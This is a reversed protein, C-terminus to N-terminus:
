RAAATAEPKTIVLMDIERQESLVELGLQERVAELLTATREERPLQYFGSDFKLRYDFRGELGTENLVPRDLISEVMPVIASFPIGIGEFGDMSWSTSRVDGEAPTLRHSGDDSLRMVYVDTERPEFTGTIGFSAEIATQLVEYMSSISSSSPVRVVVTYMTGDELLEPNAVYCSSIQWARPILRRLTMGAMTMDNRSMAMMTGAHEEEERIVVQFLPPPADEGAHPDLGARVSIGSSREFEPLGPERGALVNELVESTLSTPHTIAVITGEQDVLVTHPIGMVAYSNFTARENDIGVWSKMERREIFQEILEPEEDTISIFKVPRDAFEDALENLHPIAAICPGCWTTWFELVVVNGALDEWTAAADEPAQLIKRLDLPPAPEGVSPPEAPAAVDVAVTDEATEADDDAAVSMSLGAVLAIGAVLAWRRSMRSNM